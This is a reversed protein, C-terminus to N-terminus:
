VNASEGKQEQSFYYDIGKIRIINSNNKRAKAIYTGIQRKLKYNFFKSAEFSSRFTLERHPYEIEILDLQQSKSKSIRKNRTGHNQNQRHTVIELNSLRNNKKDEDIHNVQMGKPIEGIFAWVVLRHIYLFRYKRDKRLQVQLYGRGVENGDMILPEIRKNGHTDYWSRIRGLDSVEYADFVVGDCVVTKWTELENIELM